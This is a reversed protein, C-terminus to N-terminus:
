YVLEGGFYFSRGPQLVSLGGPSLFDLHERYNRDGLNEVGAILLLRGTAQWYSRFDWVTFGPTPQELLSSAVRDQDDVIRASVEVGWKPADVPEHLRVGLRSELPPIGPLPEESAGGGSSKGRPSGAIKQKPKGSTARKTEFNGNRTRDRGDVFSITAFPTLWENLDCDADLEFGAFTALDTSVYQLTIQEVVQNISLVGTNEFTIYDQAWAHFGTIGFRFFEREYRLGLDLQWLREQRLTPDGTLINQGNQLVFLFTEAVYLETLNPPREALAAGGLLSWNDYLEYEGTLYVSGLSFTQDFDDSGLIDALPVGKSGLHQLNSPDETIEAAVTDARGGVTIRLRDTLCLSDEIFLGPNTWASRPLPSNAGTVKPQGALIQFSSIENLEQNVFRLDTGVRLQHVEPYGWSVIARYGTSMADVDTFGEYPMAIKDFFPFQRRKGERQANGEFRTRNYWVDVEFEDYYEQDKRVYEVEYADTVLWDIDFAYGPFEVDNQDVRLLNFEIRTDVDLNRGLAINAEGWNYSSPIETDNGSEYDNGTRHGYGLRVGWTQDGGWVRQRGHLQEGNTEYDVITAGHWELGEYRPTDLWDVDVNNFQPGYIARYPGKLVEVESVIASDIKSIPTDLDIRAPIWYSGSASLSGVRSGRVRPDNVIPTRRQVGVGIARPSKVLLDGADTTARSRTEAGFVVDSAPGAAQRSRLAPSIPGSGFLTLSLERAASPSPTQPALQQRPRLQPQPQLSAIRIRTDDAAGSDSPSLEAEFPSDTAFAVAGEGNEAIVTENDAGLSILAFWWFL